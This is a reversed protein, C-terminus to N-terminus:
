SFTEFDNLDRNVVSNAPIIVNNGIKLGPMIVTNAGIFCFDGINVNKMVNVNQSMSIFDGLNVDHSIISNAHIIALKGIKVNHAIRCGPQIYTGTNLQCFNSISIDKSLVSPFIFGQNLFNNYAKARIRPNGVAIFVEPKKRADKVKEDITHKVDYGKIYDPLKALKNKDYFSIPKKYKNILLQDLIQIGLSGVGVILM